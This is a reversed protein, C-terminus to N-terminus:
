VPTPDSEAGRMGQQVWLATVVLAVIVIGGPSFSAIMLAGAQLRRRKLQIGSSSQPVHSRALRSPDEPEGKWQNREHWDGGNKRELGYLTKEICVASRFTGEFEHGVHRSREQDRDLSFSLTQTHSVTPSSPIDM